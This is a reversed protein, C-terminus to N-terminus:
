SLSICCSAAWAGSWCSVQQWEHGCVQPSVADSCPPLWVATFGQEGIEDAMGTLKRYWGERWSEWNFAQTPLWLASKVEADPPPSPLLLLGDASGVARGGARAQLIIEYGSGAAPGTTKVPPPQFFDPVKIEPQSGPCTPSSHPSPTFMNVLLQLACDLLTPAHANLFADAYAVAKPKSSVSQVQCGATVEM